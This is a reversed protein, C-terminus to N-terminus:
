KEDILTAVHGLWLFGRDPDIRDLVLAIIILLLAAALSISLVSIIRMRRRALDKMDSVTERVRLITEQQRLNEEELRAVTDELHRVQAAMSEDVRQADCSLEQEDCGALVRVIPQITSLRFDSPRASFIRDVTGKPIHSAEAIDASSLQLSEKRIRMWTVLDSASLSVVYPMCDRGAHACSKCSELM